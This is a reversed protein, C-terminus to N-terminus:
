RTPEARGEAAHGGGVKVCGYVEDLAGEEYAVDSLAAAHLVAYIRGRFLAEQIGEGFPPPQIPFQALAIEERMARVQLVDKARAECQPLTVDTTVWGGSATGERGNGGGPLDWLVEGAWEAVTAGDRALKVALPPPVTGAAAPPPQWRFAVRVSQM